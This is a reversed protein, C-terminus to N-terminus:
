KNKMGKYFSNIFSQSSPQPKEDFYRMFHCKQKWAYVCEDLEMKGKNVLLDIVRPDRLHSHEEFKERLKDLCEKRTKEMRYIRQIRPVERIWMRYLKIVRKGSENINNSFIPVAVKGITTISSNM